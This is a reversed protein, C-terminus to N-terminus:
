PGTNKKTTGMLTAIFHPPPMHIHGCSLSAVTKNIGGEVVEWFVHLSISSNMAHPRPSGHTMPMPMWFHLLRHENLFVTNHSKSSAYMSPEAPSDDASNPTLSMSPFRFHIPRSPMGLMPTPKAHPTPHPLGLIFIQSQKLIHAVFLPVVVQVRCAGIVLENICSETHCGSSM